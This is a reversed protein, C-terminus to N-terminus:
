RGKPPSPGDARRRPVRRAPTRTRATPMGRPPQYERRPSVTMVGPRTTNMIPAPTTKVVCNPSDAVDPSRLGNCRVRFREGYSVSDVGLGARGTMANLSAAVTRGGGTEVGRGGIEDDVHREMGVPHEEIEDVVADRSGRHNSNGVPIGVFLYPM